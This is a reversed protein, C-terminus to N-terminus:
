EPSEDRVINGLMVYNSCSVTMFYHVRDKKDALDSYYTVASANRLVALYDIHSRFRSLDLDRYTLLEPM